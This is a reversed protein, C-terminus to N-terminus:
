RALTLSFRPRFLRTTEERLSWSCSRCAPRSSWSARKRLTASTSCSLLANSSRRRQRGRSASAAPCALSSM